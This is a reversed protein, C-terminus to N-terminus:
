QKKLNANKLLLYTYSLFLYADVSSSFFAIGQSDHGPTKIKSPAKMRTASETAPRNKGYFFAAFYM